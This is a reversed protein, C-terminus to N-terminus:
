DTLLREARIAPPNGESYSHSLAGGACGTKHSCFQISERERGERESIVLTITCVAGKFSM